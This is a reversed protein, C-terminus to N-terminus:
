STKQSDWLSYSQQLKNTIDTKVAQTLGYRLTPIIYKYVYGWMYKNYVPAYPKKVKGSKLKKIDLFRLQLPIDIIAMASGPTKRVHLISSNVMQAVKNGNYYTNVNKSMSSLMDELGQQLTQSAFESYLM